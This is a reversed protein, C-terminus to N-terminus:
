DKVQQRAMNALTLYDTKGSGLVPMEKLAIINGYFKSIGRLDLLAEM